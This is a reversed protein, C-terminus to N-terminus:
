GQGAGPTAAPRPPEKFGFQEGLTAAAYHLAAVEAPTMALAVARDAMHRANHALHAANQAIRARNAAREAERDPSPQAAPVPSNDPM